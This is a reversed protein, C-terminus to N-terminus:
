AKTLVSVGYKQTFSLADHENNVMPKGKINL